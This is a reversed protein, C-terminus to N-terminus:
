NRPTPCPTFECKPGSRGVASGDPCIKAEMTCAVPEASAEPEIFKFTSIIEDILSTDYESLYDIKFVTITDRNNFFYYKSLINENQTNVLLVDQNNITINTKATIKDTPSILMDCTLEYCSEAKYSNALSLKNKNKVSLITLIRDGNQNNISKNVGDEAGIDQINLSSPYNFTYKMLTNIFTKQSINSDSTPSFTPTPIVQLISIKKVLNQTQYAFFGAILVAILLLISLLSVLFGNNKIPEQGNNVVQSTQNIEEM